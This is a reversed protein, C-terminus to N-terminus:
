DCLIFFLHLITEKLGCGGVSIVGTPVLRSIRVLPTSRCINMLDQMRDPFGPAFADPNIAIFCQGLDAVRNTEKWRRIKPGYQAGALIGCFIEVMMALGYGKYGSSLESGGLPLLGGGDIVERPNHTEQLCRCSRENLLDRWIEVNSFLSSYVFCKIADISLEMPLFM